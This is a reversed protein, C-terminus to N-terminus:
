MFYDRVEERSIKGNSNLPVKNRIIYRSPMAFPPLRDACHQRLSEETPWASERPAILAVLSAELDNANLLCVVAQAVNPHSTLHAEIATLELRHGRFKIQQDRRGHFWLRGSQDRRGFDGTRYSYKRGAHRSNQSLEPDNWYGPSVNAGSVCIEGVEDVEALGGDARFVNVDLHECPLGIPIATDSEAPLEEIPHYTCVNTETPGYLNVFETARLRQMLARLTPVPMVEGAFFVLRLNTLCRQDLGGYQSLMRLATPVSYWVSIRQKELLGGVAAPFRVTTEDILYVSAGVHLSVFLDFTALDFHFPAHSSFRDDPRFGFRGIAWHIFSSINRHTLQIGKPKGTTGSTYLIAATDDMNLPVGSEAFAGEIWSMFGEGTGVQDLTIMTPWTNPNADAIHASTKRLDSNLKQAINTTTLLFRANLDNLIQALRDPPTVHDIPVYAAGASLIGLIAQVGEVCKPLCVAVRDGRDIGNRRFAAGIQLSSQRLQGHSLQGNPWIVAPRDTISPRESLITDHLLHTPIHTM